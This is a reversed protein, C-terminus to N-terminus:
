RPRVSTRSDCLACGEDSSGAVEVLSTCCEVEEEDGVVKHIGFSRVVITRCEYLANWIPEKGLKVVGDSDSIDGRSGRDGRSGQDDAGTMHVDDLSVVGVVIGGLWSAHKQGM